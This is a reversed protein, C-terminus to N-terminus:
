PTLALTSVSMAPMTYTLVNGSITVDAQRTPNPSGDQMVYVQAATPSGVGSLTIQTVKPTTTKNIVVLVTRGTSTRSAYVSSQAVNSTTAQLGTDGFSSGSGDYNRFVRLAGFIYAYALNPNGNWPSAYIGAFPWISAAFVGERGFIGFVDAQAIGGSIDGGRGYYYETIALKTGPYHAAIQDRLRPILRVPGGASGPVWSNDTYTPDWLSRPAQVRAEAM